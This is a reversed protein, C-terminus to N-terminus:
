VKRYRTTRGSGLRRVQKTALLRTLAQSVTARPVATAQAIEGPTAQAVTDLYEWVKLQQPSLQTTLDESVLLKGALEAQERLVSLFYAAWDAISEDPTGFSKQSRRLALYYDTKTTEILKEQSVYPVYLYEARLMLLNTLLRSMRGNGDLFPHIKLFEVIFATVLLLPHTDGVSESQFWAVLEQMAKPTLYAPTTEFVVGVINGAPGRADVRNEMTKYHGTHRVDKESYKLLRTHLHLITNETLPLERYQEFIFRLTEYYGRVEQTDRDAMKQTRLGQMLKEVETDSMRSGEIRTSAGASTVLVSRKLRELLQPSLHPVLKWQGRYEDILSLHTYPTTGLDTIRKTYDTM